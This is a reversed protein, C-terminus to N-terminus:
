KILVLLVHKEVVYSFIVKKPLNTLCPCKLHYVTTIYFKEFWRLAFYEKLLVPGIGSM